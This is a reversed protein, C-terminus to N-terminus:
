LSFKTKDFHHLSSIIEGKDGIIEHEKGALIELANPDPIWIVYANANQGSIVGPIGDEFILCEEIKISDLGKLQRETNLSDLCTFWIHPNPKGKGPPIREDDGTVIHDGFLEFGEKLHQTKRQYNISNSSTGLAIPIENEKLYKLLELAGPLFKTRAWKNEQVKISEAIFEQPTIPLDYEQIMIKTAEPGPRGQLKIKVDWTMPGKGYKALLESSAETYIDETNLITGDMDFLCARINAPVNSM